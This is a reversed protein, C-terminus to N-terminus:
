ILKNKESNLTSFSVSVGDYPSKTPGVICYRILEIFINFMDGISNLFMHLIEYNDKSDNSHLVNHLYHDSNYKLAYFISSLVPFFLTNSNWRFTFIAM